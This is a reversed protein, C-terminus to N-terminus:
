MLNCIINVVRDYTTHVMRCHSRCCLSISYLIESCVIVCLLFAHILNCYLFNAVCSLPYFKPFCPYTCCLIVFVWFFQIDLVQPPSLISDRKPRENARQVRALPHLQKVQNPSKSFHPIVMERCIQPTRLLSLLHQTYPSLSYLHDIASLSDSFTLLLLSASFCPSSHNSPEM